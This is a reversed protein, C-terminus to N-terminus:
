FGVGNGMDIKSLIAKPTPQEFPQRPALHLLADLPRERAGRQPRTLLFSWWLPFLRDAALLLPQADRAADRDPRPAAARRARSPARGIEVARMSSSIWSSFLSYVTTITVWLM